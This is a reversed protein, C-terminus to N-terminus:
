SFVDVRINIDSDVSAGTTDTVYVNCGTATLNLYNIHRPANKPAACTLQVYSTSVGTNPWTITYDGFGSNRTATATQLGNQFTFSSAGANIRGMVWPRTAIAYANITPTGTFNPSALNSKLGLSTDVQTKTYVDSSNAKLDLATQTASSVPKNADSTNDVNELGVMDKTIGSVTGTFTPNNRPAYTTSANSTTLYIASLDSIKGDTYINSNQIANLRAIDLQNEFVTIDVKESLELQTAYDNILTQTTAYSSMNAVTQYLSFKDNFTDSVTM